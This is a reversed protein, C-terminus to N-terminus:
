YNETIVKGCKVCVFDTERHYRGCEKFDHECFDYVLNLSAQLKKKTDKVIKHSRIIDRAKIFDDYWENDRYPKPDISWKEQMRAVLITIKKEPEEPSENLYGVEMIEM